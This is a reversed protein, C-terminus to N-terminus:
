VRWPQPALPLKTGRFWLRNRRFRRLAATRPFSEFATAAMNQYDIFVMVQNSM